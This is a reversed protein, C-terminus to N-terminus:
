AQIKHLDAMQKIQRNRCSSTNTWKRKKADKNKGYIVIATANHEIEIKLIWSKNGTDEM